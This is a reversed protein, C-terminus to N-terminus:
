QLAGVISTVLETAILPLEQTVATTATYETKEEMTMCGQYAMYPTGLLANLIMTHTM